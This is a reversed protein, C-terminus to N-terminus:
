RKVKWTQNKKDYYVEKSSYRNASASGVEHQGIKTRNERGWGMAMKEFDKIHWKFRIKNLDSHLRKIARLDPFIIFQGTHKFILILISYDKKVRIRIMDGDYLTIWDHVNYNIEKIYKEELNNINLALRKNGKENKASLSLDIYRPRVFAKRKYKAM